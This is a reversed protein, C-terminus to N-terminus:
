YYKKSGRQNNRGNQNTYQHGNKKQNNRNKYPIFKYKKKASNRSKSNSGHNTGNSRGKSRGRSTSKSKSKGRSSTRSNNRSNSRPYVNSKSNSRSQSHSSRNRSRGRSTSKSQSQTRGRSSSKSGSRGSKKNKSSNQKQQQNAHSYPKKSNNGGKGSPNRPTAKAYKLQKAVETKITNSVAVSIKFTDFEMTKEKDPALREKDEKSKFEELKNKCNVFFTDAANKYTEAAIPQTALADLIVKSFDALATQLKIMILAEIALGPKETCLIQAKLKAAKKEMEFKKKKSFEQNLNVSVSAAATDYHGMCEDLTNQLLTARLAQHLGNTLDNITDAMKTAYNNRNTKVQKELLALEATEKLLIVEQQQESAKSQITDMTVAFGKFADGFKYDQKKSLSKITIGNEKMELLRKVNVQKRLMKTILKKAKDVESYMLKKIQKFVKMEAMEKNAKNFNQSPLGNEAVSPPNDEVVPMSFEIMHDGVQLIKNSAKIEAPTKLDSKSFVTWNDQTHVFMDEVRPALNISPELNHEDDPKHDHKNEVNPGDSMLVDELEDKKEEQNNEVSDVGGQAQLRVRKPSNLIQIPRQRNNHGNGLLSCAELIKRKFLSVSKNQDKWQENCRILESIQDKMQQQCLNANELEDQLGLCTRQLTNMDGVTKNPQKMDQLNSYHTLIQRDIEECKSDNTIVEDEKIKPPFSSSM